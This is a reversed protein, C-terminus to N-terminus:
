EFKLNEICKASKKLKSIKELEKQILRSVFIPDKCIDGGCHDSNARISKICQNDQTNWRGVNLLPRKRLVAGRMIQIFTKM